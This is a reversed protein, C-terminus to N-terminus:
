GGGVNLAVREIAHVVRLLDSVDRGDFFSSDVTNRPSFTVVFGDVVM